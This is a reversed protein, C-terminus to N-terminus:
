RVFVKLSALSHDYQIPSFAVKHSTHFSSLFAPATSGSTKSELLAPTVCRRGLIKGSVEKGWGMGIDCVLAICWREFITRFLQTKGTHVQTICIEPLTSVNIKQRKAGPTELDPSEGAGARRKASM